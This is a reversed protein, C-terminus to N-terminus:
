GSVLSIIEPKDVPNVGDVEMVDEVGEGGVCESLPVETVPQKTHLISSVDSHPTYVSRPLLTCCVYNIHRIAHLNKIQHMSPEPLPDGRFSGVKSGHTCCHMRLM